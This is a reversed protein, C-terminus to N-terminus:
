SKRICICMHVCVPNCVQTEAPNGGEWSATHGKTGASFTSLTGKRSKCVSWLWLGPCRLGRLSLIFNFVPGRSRGPLLLVWEDEPHSFKPTPRPNLSLCLHRYCVYECEDNLIMASSPSKPSWGSTQM